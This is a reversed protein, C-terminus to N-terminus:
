RLLGTFIVLPIAAYALLLVIAGLSGGKRIYPFSREGNLGWTQFSSQIGHSLHLWLAVLGTLYVAVIWLQHFARAVMFTVDPRGAADPHRLAATSPDIVQFTFHLLHFVLFAGIVAGTWVMNRGAFSSALNEKREYAHPRAANNELALVIGYYIHLPFLVVLGLRVSWLIPALAHHLRAAYTNLGGSYITSNGLVHLLIFLLLLQGTAAM